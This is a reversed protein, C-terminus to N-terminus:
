VETQIQKRCIKILEFSNELVRKYITDDTTNDYLNSLLEISKDVSISFDNDKFVLAYSEKFNYLKMKQLIIFEKLEDIKKNKRFQRTIIMFENINNHLDKLLEFKFELDLSNRQHELQRQLSKEEFGKAIQSLKYLVIVNALSLLTNVTGGMYDGFDGWETSNNSLTTGWFKIVYLSVFILSILGVSIVTYKITKDM